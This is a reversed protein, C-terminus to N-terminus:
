ELAWSGCSSLGCEMVVSTWTCIARAGCCSFGSCHFAQASCCLTARGVAVLLPVHAACGFFLFLYMFLIEFKFFFVFFRVHRQEARIRDSLRVRDVSILMDRESAPGNRSISQM